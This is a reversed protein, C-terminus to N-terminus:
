PPDKLWHVGSGESYQAPVVSSFDALPSSQGEASTYFYYVTEDMVWAQPPPAYSQYLHCYIWKVSKGHLDFNRVTNFIRNYREIEVAVGDLTELGVHIASSTDDPLQKVAESLHRRIDRAKREISPEADCQWFAGAAFELADLYRDFVHGSGTSATKAAFICTFGSNPDRRGAILETMQDSPCKVYYKNLHKRASELDVQTVHVDWIDNSIVHSPYSVILPLKRSLEDLVFTNSLMELEVHFVIDLVVAHQHEFLYQSMPRWLKLWKERELSSYGSKKSLRKCEIAWQSSGSSAILDPTKEFPSETVFSVDSWGNRHWLLAVLFEFLTSDVAEPNNHLLNRTKKDVGSIQMLSDIDTGLREFIPLIRAGRIPEYKELATLATEVLYLYGYITDLNSAKPPQLDIDKRSSYTPFSAILGEEIEEKIEHWRSPEIFNIFWDFARRVNVADTDIPPSQLKGNNSM